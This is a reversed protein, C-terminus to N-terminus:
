QLRKKHADIDRRRSCRDRGLAGPGV